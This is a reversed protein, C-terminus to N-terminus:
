LDWGLAQHQLLSRRHRNLYNMHIDSVITELSYFELDRETIRLHRNWKDQMTTDDFYGERFVDQIFVDYTKVFQLLTTRKVHTNNFQGSRHQRRANERRRQIVYESCLQKVRRKQFPGSQHVSQMHDKYDQFTEFTQPQSQDYPCVCVEDYFDCEYGNLIPLIGVNSSSVKWEFM